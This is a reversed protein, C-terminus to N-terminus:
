RPVHLGVTLNEAMKSWTPKSPRLDNLHMPVETELIANAFLRQQTMAREPNM